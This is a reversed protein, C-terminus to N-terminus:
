VGPEAICSPGCLRRAVCCDAAFPAHLAREPVNGHLGHGRAPDLRWDWDLLNNPENWLEVWDFYTGFRSIMLDLFDAFAKPKRPPAATKPVVGLSPPTYLFCPLINVEDALRPLLWGYWEKGKPTYWDAWSVATRLNKVGLRRLDALVHEVRGYEGLRFWEVLGITKEATSEPSARASLEAHPLHTEEEHQCKRATMREGHRM